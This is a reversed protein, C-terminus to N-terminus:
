FGGKLFGLGAVACPIASPKCAHLVTACLGCFGGCQNYKLMCM